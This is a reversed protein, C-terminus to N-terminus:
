VGQKRSTLFHDFDFWVSKFFVPLSEMNFAIGENVVFRNRCNGMASMTGEVIRIFIFYAEPPFVVRLFSRQEAPRYTRFKFQDAAYQIYEFCFQVTGQLLFSNQQKALVM